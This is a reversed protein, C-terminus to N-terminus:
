AVNRHTVASGWVHPAILAGGELIINNISADAFGAEAIVDGTRRTLHCGDALARQLPELVTQAVVLGRGNARVHEIFLLQGGPKLVRQIERLAQAQSSVSCLTLTCVATDFTNDSCPLEELVGTRLQLRAPSLGTSAAAERAYDFMADNPDVGVIESAQLTCSVARKVCMLLGRSARMLKQIPTARPLSQMHAYM